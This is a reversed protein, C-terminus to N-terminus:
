AVLSSIKLATDFCEFANLPKGGSEVQVRALRQARGDDPDDEEGQSRM